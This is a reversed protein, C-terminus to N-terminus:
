DEKGALKKHNREIKLNESDEKDKRDAESSITGVFAIFIVLALVALIWKGDMTTLFLKNTTYISICFGSFSKVNLPRM